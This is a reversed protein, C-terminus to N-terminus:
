TGMELQIETKIEALNTVGEDSYFAAVLLRGKCSHIWIDHDANDMLKRRVSTACYDVALVDYKDDELDCLVVYVGPRDKLDDAKPFPGEFDNQGIIV